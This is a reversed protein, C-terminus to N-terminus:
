PGDEYRAGFHQRIRYIGNAVDARYEYAGYLLALAAVLVLARTHIPTSASEDRTTNTPTDKSAQNGSKGKAASGSASEKSPPEQVVNAKGPTPRVTWYWKGKALAWAFGDKAKAYEASSSINRGLPDLLDARSGSNSLSLGTEKSYFTKFSGPRLGSGAPFIYTHKRTNGTQLTFGSLDFPKPNSNYLEIFEETDDNGKGDPNPLLETIAPARLGVDAAPLGAYPDSKSVITAPPEAAALLKGPSTPADAAAPGAATLVCPNDSDPHVTLWSGAGPASVRPNGQGDAPQRQLFDATGNPLTQVNAADKKSWAAYDQLVPTVPGGPTQQDFALVQVMGATSSFGLSVSDVTLWYCLLLADDNVMYYGHPPVTGSLAILKSSTAKELDYSNFYVLRYKGMDMASDTANYLTIFQGDRSTIKLQSIILSPGDAEAVAPGPRIALLGGLVMIAM